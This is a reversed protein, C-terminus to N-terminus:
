VNPDQLRSEVAWDLLGLLGTNMLSVDAPRLPFHGLMLAQIYLLEVSRSQGVSDNMESVRQVIPNSMNLYLTASQETVSESLSELMDSWLEDSAERAQEISRYFDAQENSVYVSPLVSPAFSALKVRCLLPRLREEALAAFDATTRQEVPSLEEFRMALQDLDFQEVEVDNFTEGIRKLIEVDYVYGANVVSVSESSAIPAIQRFQDRTSVYRIVPNERRFEGFTMEGLSTEFPLWDAFLELCEDDEIALSKVAIHHTAMFAAFRGPENRALDILYQRLSHGLEDRTQILLEDEYLSERSATPRLETTNAVCQVFFAWEPLLKEAKESLLMNRLYIRHSQGSSSQVSQGLIFAVGELGAAPSKLPVADIFSRDFLQEGWQLLKGREDPDQLNRDWAPTQNVIESDDRCTVIIQPVLFEGYHATLRRLNSPTVLDRASDKCRLYVTTGPAIDHDLTRVTYTGDASGKWEVPHLQGPKASRSIVVIENAVLFCSLLGIGFRGLYDQPAAVSAGRKSSQGITALFEHADSETLGVGSDRFVITPPGDTEILELHIQEDFEHGLARRAAIADVGNQLLERVFVSPGSYLHESLLEILGSLDVQFRESAPM